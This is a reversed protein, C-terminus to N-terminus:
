RCGSRGTHNEPFPSAGTRGTSRRSASTACGREGTARSPRSASHSGTACAIRGTAPPSFATSTRASIFRPTTALPWNAFGPVAHDRGEPCQDLQSWIAFSPARPSLPARREGGATRTASGARLECPAPTYANPQRWAGNPPRGPDMSLHRTDLQRRRAARADLKPVGGSDALDRGPAAAAANRSM